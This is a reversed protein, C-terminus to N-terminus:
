RDFSKLPRPPPPIVDQAADGVRWKHCPIMGMEKGIWARAVEPFENWSRLIDNKMRENHTKMLSFYEVCNPRANNRVARRELRIYLSYRSGKEESINEAVALRARYYPNFDAPVTAQMVAGEQTIFEGKPLKKLAGGYDIVDQPPAYSQLAVEDAFDMLSASIKKFIQNLRERIM